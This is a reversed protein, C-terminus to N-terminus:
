EANLAEREATEIKRKYIALYKERKALSADLVNLVSDLNEANATLVCSTTLLCVFRRILLIMFGM